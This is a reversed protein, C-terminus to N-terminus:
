HAFRVPRRLRARDRLPRANPSECYLSPAPGAMLVSEGGEPVPINPLTIIPSAPRAMPEGDGQEDSVDTIDSEPAAVAVDSPVCPEGEDSLWSKPTEAGCSKLKDAHVVIPKGRASKQIVYNCPPLVSTILYPGTYNRSWKPSRGRFKRPYFYWVWEHRSFQQSRVRFDYERKRREAARGLHQRALDHAMRQRELLEAVYSDPSTGVDEPEDKGVALVLDIPARNERGYVLFNPSFGTSEHVTARYAAMVPGVHHDWDRQSESVVKGLM